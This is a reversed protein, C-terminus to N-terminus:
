AISIVPPSFDAGLGFGPLPPVRGQAHIDNTFAVISFLVGVFPGVLVKM